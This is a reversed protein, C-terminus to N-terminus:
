RLDLLPLLVALSDPVFRATDILEALGSADVWRAEVVEGDAFSFPGDHVTAYCRVITAVDDDVFTAGGIPQPVVGGIGVEEGLERVAAQAYTEGAVVVGGVGIDWRGPWLDKADSRRHVLLRGDSSRVAIGVSRHLLRGARMERRTVTAVVRDADDVIDVLEDGPPLSPVGSQDTV